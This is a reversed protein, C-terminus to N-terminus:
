SNKRPEIFTTPRIIIKSRYICQLNKRWFNKITHHDQWDMETNEVGHDRTNKVLEVTETAILKMREIDEHDRLDLLPKVHLLGVSAHAYAVVPTQHRKCISFVEKIYASLNELPVAADEIIAIPKRKGKVGLM